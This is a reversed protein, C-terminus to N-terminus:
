KKREHFVEKLLKQAERHPNKFIEKQSLPRTKSLRNWTMSLAWLMCELSQNRLRNEEVKGTIKLFQHHREIGEALKEVGEGNQAVTMLVPPKWGSGDPRNHLERALAAELQKAGPRDAKNIVFIDAWETIGRKMMQIEDGSEPSLVLVTTDALHQIAWESQGAGVTEILVCGFGFAGFARAMTKAILYGSFPSAKPAFSRFFIRPHDAKDGLRIRDGLFAGGSISSRPDMAIIGLYQHDALPEALHAVLSSKGVGTPGTIAITYIQFDNQYIKQFFESDEEGREILTLIRSIADDHGSLAAKFWSQWPKSSKM